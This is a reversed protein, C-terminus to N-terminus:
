ASLMEMLAYRFKKVRVEFEQRRKLHEPRIAFLLFTHTWPSRRLEPLAADSPGPYFIVGGKAQRKGDVSLYFNMMYGLIKYVDETRPRGDEEVGTKADGIVYGGNSYFIFDPRGAVCWYGLGRVPEVADYYVYVPLGGLEAFLVPGRTNDLVSDVTMVDAGLMEQIKVLVWFQYLIAVDEEQGRRITEVLVEKAGGVRVYKVFYERWLRGVLEILWDRRAAFEERWAGELTRKVWMETIVPPVRVLAPRLYPFNLYGRLLRYLRRIDSRLEEEIAGGRSGGGLFRLFERLVERALAVALVCVSTIHSYRKIVCVYESSHPHRAWHRMTEKADVVGRLRDTVVRRSIKVMPPNSVLSPFVDNALVRGIHILLQINLRRRVIIYGEETELRVTDVKKERELRGMFDLVDLRM